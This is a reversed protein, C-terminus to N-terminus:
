TRSEPVPQTPIANRQNIIADWAAKGIMGDIQLGNLYQFQQVAIRTANGFFGDARIPRLCDNVASIENIYQQMKFVALGLDGLKQYYTSSYVPVDSIIGLKRLENIIGDWTDSGVIGDAPLKLYAQFQRVAEEMNAGFIGDEALKKSIIGRQAFMNLYAQLKNVGIGVNGKRIVFSTKM